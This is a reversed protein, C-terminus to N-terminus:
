AIFKLTLATIFTAVGLAFLIPLIFGEPNLKYKM